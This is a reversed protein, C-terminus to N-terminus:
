ILGLEKFSTYTNDGIIIHDILPINMLLGCKQIQSTIERDQKSPKADGSPHNHVLIINAADHRLAKIFVERPSLVSLNVSGISLVCDGLFHAKNDLMLLIVRETKQHRISEMYYEAILAPRNWQMQNRIAQKSMRISLEAIAMIKVAKVTGIGNIQKLQEISLQHLSILSGENSPEMKLIELALDVASKDKTGTRLIIALLEADSLSGAGLDLFREYPMMTQDMNGKGSEM